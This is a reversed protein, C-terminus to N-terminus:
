RSRRALFSDYKTAYWEESTIGNEVKWGKDEWSEQIIEGRLYYYVLDHIHLKIDTGAEYSGVYSDSTKNSLVYGGNPGGFVEWELTEKGVKAVLIKGIAAM